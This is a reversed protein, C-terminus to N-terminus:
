LTNSTLYLHLSIADWEVVSTIQVARLLYGLKLNQERHKYKEPVVAGEAVHDEEQDIKEVYCKINKVSQADRASACPLNNIM